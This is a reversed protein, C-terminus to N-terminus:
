TTAETMFAKRANVAERFLLCGCDVTHVAMTRISRFLIALKMGAFMRKQDAIM